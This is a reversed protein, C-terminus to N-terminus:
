LQNNRVAILNKPYDQQSVVKHFLDYVWFVMQM